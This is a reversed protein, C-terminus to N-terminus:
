GPPLPCTEFGLFGPKAIKGLNGLGLEVMAKFSHQSTGLEVYGGYAVMGEPLSVYSNFIAM